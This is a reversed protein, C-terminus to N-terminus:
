RWSYLEDDIALYAQAWSPYFEVAPLYHFINERHGVVIIRSGLVLAMGYEVHRGGRTPGTRPAETFNIVCDAAVIDRIDEHAFQRSQEDTLEADVAGHGGDVWRSTVEHGAILLDDRVAQMEAIRSYRAALYFKM